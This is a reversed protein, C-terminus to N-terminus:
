AAKARGQRNSQRRNPLEPRPRRLWLVVDGPLLLSLAISRLLLHTTVRVLRM